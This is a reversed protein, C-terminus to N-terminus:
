SSTSHHAPVHRLSKLPACIREGVLPHQEMIKREEPTLPGTKLLIHEPVAV